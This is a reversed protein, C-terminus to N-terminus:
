GAFGEFLVLNKELRSRTAGLFPSRMKAFCFHRNTVRVSPSV